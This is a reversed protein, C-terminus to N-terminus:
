MSIFFCNYMVCGVGKSFQQNGWYNQLKVIHSLSNIKIVFGISLTLALIDENEGQHNRLYGELLNFYWGSQFDKILRVFWRKARIELVHTVAIAPAQLELFKRNAMIFCFYSVPLYYEPRRDFWLWWGMRPVVKAGKRITCGLTWWGPRWPRRHCFVFTTEDTM